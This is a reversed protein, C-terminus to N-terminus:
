SEGGADRPQWLTCAFDPYPWNTPPVQVGLRCPKTGDVMLVDLWWHQCVGCRRGNLREVEAELESIRAELADMYRVTTRDIVHSANMYEYRITDIDSM